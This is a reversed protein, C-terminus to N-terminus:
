ARKLGDSISFIIDRRGRYPTITNRRDHNTYFTTTTTELWLASYWGRSFRTASRICRRGAHALEMFQRPRQQEMQSGNVWRRVILIELDINWCAETCGGYPTSNNHFNVTERTPPKRCASLGPMEVRRSWWDSLASPPDGFDVRKRRKRRGRFSPVLFDALSLSPCYHRYCTWTGEDDVFMMMVVVGGGRPMKMVRMRITYRDPVVVAIGPFM